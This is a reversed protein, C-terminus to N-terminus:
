QKQLLARPGFVTVAVANKRSEDGIERAVLAIKEAREAPGRAVLDLAGFGFVIQRVRM